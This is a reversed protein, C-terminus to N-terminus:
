NCIDHCIEYGEICIVVPPGICCYCSKRTGHCRTSPSPMCFGTLKHDHFPDDSDLTSPPPSVKSSNTQMMAIEINKEGNNSGDISMILLSLVFFMVLFQMNMFM